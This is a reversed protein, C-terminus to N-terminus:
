RQTELTPPSYVDVHYAPALMGRGRILDAAREAMMLVPGNLNGSVISPVISADVIRLNLVGHVNLTVPDVVSMSDTGMKCTCSPHYNTDGFKRIFEDLESDTKYESGPQLELGRFEDFANQELIERTLRICERLGWRDRESDLYNPEILPQHSPDPSQLAVYGRSEQRLQGVHIQFAEHTIKGRGHDVVQSPVFHYQIDPHTVGPCSRIFGGVEYHSTGCLGSQDYFWRLGIKVMNQPQQWKYLSIPKICEQQLCVEFHDQLNQGVGPLDVLVDIGQSKIHDAPGVGSLMLLQPSNIAGGSLIVSKNARALKLEGGQRYEVGVAKGSEILVKTVLCGTLASLNSRAVCQEHLHGVSASSRMGRWLTSDMPGVGEQQFGNFDDTYPYGAQKGAEIFAHYLPNNMQPRTVGVPGSGGRYNNEGSSHRTSKKFYPLCHAYDWDTAGEAAWRDYDLAHGRIYVMANLSSSGGWVRGRPWYMVRDNLNKQPTTHYFWNYRDNRLNYMLASPMHIKWMLLKSRFWTDTPGAELSLVSSSTDESLRNALVCGASGAGVIVYDHCSESVYAKRATFLSCFQHFNLIAPKFIDEQTRATLYHKTTGFTTSLRLKLHNLGARKLSM